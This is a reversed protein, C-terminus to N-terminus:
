DRERRSDNEGPGWGDFDPMLGILAFLGGVVCIVGFLTQPSPLPIETARADDADAAPSAGVPLAGQAECRVSAGAGDLCTPAGIAAAPALLGGCLALGLIARRAGQAASQHSLFPM